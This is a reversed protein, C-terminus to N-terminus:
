KVELFKMIAKHQAIYGTCRCLNGNLYHSIADVSPEIKELKMAYVALTLGPNCFGCQDAGEEGMYDAFREADDFIGEVTTIQHGVARASLYSCSPVPKDDILITCVGCSTEDCGKKVSVFGIKRLTEVLFEDPRILVEYPQKNIILMVNM